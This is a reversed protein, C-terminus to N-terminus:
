LKIHLQGENESFGKRNKSRSRARNRNRWSRRWRRGRRWTTGWQQM